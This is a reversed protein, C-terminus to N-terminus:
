QCPIMAMIHEKLVRKNTLHLSSIHFIENEGLHLDELERLYSFIYVQLVPCM